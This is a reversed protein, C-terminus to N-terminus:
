LVKAPYNCNAIQVFIIAKIQHIQRAPARAFLFGWKAEMVKKMKRDYRYRRNYDDRDFCNIAWIAWTDETMYYYVETYESHKRKEEAKKGATLKSTVASLSPTSIDLKM